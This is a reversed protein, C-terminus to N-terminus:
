GDDHVQKVGEYGEEGSAQKELFGLPRVERQSQQRQSSHDDAASRGKKRKKKPPEEVIEAGEVQQHKEDIKTDQKMIPDEKVAKRQHLGALEGEASQRRPDEKELKPSRNEAGAGHEQRHLELAVGEPKQQQEGLLKQKRAESSVARGWDERHVGAFDLRSPTFVEGVPSSLFGSVRRRPASWQIVNRTVEGRHDAGHLLADELIRPLPKLDSADIDSSSAAATEAEARRKELAVTGADNSKGVPERFSVGGGDGDSKVFFSNSNKDDVAEREGEHKTSRSTAETYARQLDDRERSKRGRTTPKRLRPPIPSTVGPAEGACSSRRRAPPPSRFSDGM